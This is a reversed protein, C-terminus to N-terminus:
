RYRQTFSPCKNNTRWIHGRPAQKGQYSMVHTCVLGTWRSMGAVSLCNLPTDQGGVAPNTADRSARATLSGGRAAPHRGQTCWRQCTPRHKSVLEGQFQNLMVILICGQLCM